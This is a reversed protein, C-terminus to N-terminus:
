PHGRLVREVRAGREGDPAVGEVDEAQRRELLGAERVHGPQRVRQLDQELVQQAALVRPEDIGLVDLREGAPVDTGAGLLLNGERGRAHQQLVEGAHGRHDIERGHAVTDHLEAAVRPLDVRELRDLEDDIVRDLDIVVELAVGGVEVGRELEAAVALAVGEQAPALLGEVVEADDRGVGADDM